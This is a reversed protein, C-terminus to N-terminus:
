AKLGALAEVYEEPTDPTFCFICAGDAGRRRAYRVMRLLEEPTNKGASSRMCPGESWKATTHGIQTKHDCTTEKFRDFRTTYNMFDIRDLLGEECWSKWDQGESVAPGYGYSNPRNMEDDLKVYLCRASIGLGVGANKARKQIEDMFLRIIRCRTEVEKYIVAPSRMDKRTLLEHGLWEKRIKRCNMCQCPYDFFWTNIYRIFDMHIGTINRKDSSLVKELLSFDTAGSVIASPCSTGPVLKFDEKAAAPSDTVYRNMKGRTRVMGKLSLGAWIDIGANKFEKVLIRFGKRYIGSFSLVMAAGIGARSLKGALARIGKVNRHEESVSVWAALEFKGPKKRKM